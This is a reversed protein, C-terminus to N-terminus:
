LVIDYKEVDIVAQGVSNFTIDKAEQPTYITSTMVQEGNNIFIEVSFRDMIIRMKIQGNNNGVLMERTMIIDRRFGSNTRDFKVINTSPKYTIVTEYESNKALKIEFKDYLKCGAPKINVTMDITRGNVSTLNLEKRIAVDKYIVANKRYNELERVPNQILRGNKTTLERAVTMQGFWKANEPQCRCSEWCQMWGIMIRRGDPSLTTQPAYFDLGFDIARVENRTFKHNKADYSGTLYINGNGNHFELDRARMDQPSTLIIATDGLMFFDPCEWMKGYENNCSDLVTVFEWKKTDKSTFLLISGSGDAPRNGIVSFYCKENEDYWIKPDRFDIASGGEPLDKATLVPNNEYKEYNAGDGFALCQVQKIDKSGDKLENEIVGTYMILHRGDELEIASGSFCGAHDYDMDPALSVPLFEWKILDKSKLHGWHMPGWNTDYPHYQYFLHYEGNYYSVGNPDNMWGVYPTPHFLPREEDLIKSGFKTEYERAKILNKSDM